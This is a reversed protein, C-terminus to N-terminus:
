QPRIGLSVLTDELGGVGMKMAALLHKEAEKVRGEKMLASAIGQHIGILLEADDLGGEEFLRDLIEAAATHDAVFGDIAGAEERIDGRCVYSMALEMEDDLDGSARLGEGVEIAIGYEGEAANKDGLEELAKAKLNHAEMLRNACWPDSDGGLVSVAKELFPLAEDEFASEILDEACDLCMTVIDDSDYQRTNGDLEPLKSVIRAYDDAMGEPDSACLLQGRNEFVRVYLGPDIEQGSDEMEEIMEAAADMDSIASIYSEMMILVSGRNVYASLLESLPGSSELEGIRKNYESLAEELHSDLPPM